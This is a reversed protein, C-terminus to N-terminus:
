FVLRTPVITMRLAWQKRRRKCPSEFSVFQIRSFTPTKPCEEYAAVGPVFVYDTYFHAVNIVCDLVPNIGRDMDHPYPLHEVINAKEASGEIDQIEMIAHFYEVEPRMVTVCKYCICIHSPPLFCDYIPRNSGTQIVSAPAAYLVPAPFAEVLTDWVTQTRGRFENPVAYRDVPGVLRAITQREVEEISSPSFKIRKNDTNDMVCSHNHSQKPFIAVKLQM